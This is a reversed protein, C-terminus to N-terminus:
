RSSGKALLPSSAKAFVQAQRIMGLDNPHCGDVTGETDDGLMGENSLFHLDRDGSCELRYRGESDSAVVNRGANVLVKAVGSEGADWRGNQDADLYVRGELMPSSVNSVLTEPVLIAALILRCTM